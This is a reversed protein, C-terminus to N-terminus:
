PTTPMGPPFSTWSGAARKAASVCLRPLRSTVLPWLTGEPPPTQAPSAVSCKGPRRSLHHGARDSRLGAGAPRHGLWPGWVGAPCLLSLHCWGSFPFATTLATQWLLPEGGTPVSPSGSASSLPAQTACRRGCALSLAEGSVGSIVLNYKAEATKLENETWRAQLERASTTSEGFALATEAVM